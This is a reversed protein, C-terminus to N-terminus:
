TCSVVDKNEAAIVERVRKVIEEIKKKRFGQDGFTAKALKLLMILENRFYKLNMM